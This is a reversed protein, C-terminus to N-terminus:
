RTMFGVSMNGDASDRIASIKQGETVRFYEVHGLPMYISGDAASATPNTGFAIWANTSCVIRVESVFAPIAVSQAAAATYAVVDSVDAATASDRLRHINEARM